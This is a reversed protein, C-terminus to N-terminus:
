SGDLLGLEPRCQGQSCLSKERRDGCALVIEGLVLPVAAVDPLQSSFLDQMEGDWRRCLGQLLFRCFLLGPSM